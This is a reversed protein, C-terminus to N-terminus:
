ETASIPAERAQLCLLRDGHAPSWERGAIGGKEACFSSQGPQSVRSVPCCCAGQAQVKLRPALAGLLRRFSRALGSARHCASRTGRCSTCRWRAPLRRMARFTRMKAPWRWRAARDLRSICSTRPCRPKPRDQRSRRPALRVPDLIAVGAATAGPDTELVGVGDGGYNRFTNRAVTIGSVHLNSGGGAAGESRRPLGAKRKRRTCAV